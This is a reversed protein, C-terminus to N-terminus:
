KDNYEAGRAAAERGRYQPAPGADKSAKKDPATAGAAPPVAVVGEEEKAEGLPQEAATPASGLAAPAMPQLAAPGGAQGPEGAKGDQLNYRNVYSGKFYLWEGMQQQGHFNALHSVSCGDTDLVNVQAKKQVLLEVIEDRGAEAARFLPTHAFNDVSDIPHGKELFLEVLNRYGYYAAEHLPTRGQYDAFDVTAGKELLLRIIAENNKWTAEWLATRFFPKENYDLGYDKGPGSFGAKVMDTFKARFGTEGELLGRRALYLLRRKDDTTAM